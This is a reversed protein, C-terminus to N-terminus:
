GAAEVAAEAASYPSRLLQGQVASSTSTLLRSLFNDWMQKNNTAPGYDTIRHMDAQHLSNRQWRM